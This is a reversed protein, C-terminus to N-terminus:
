FYRYFNSSPTQKNTKTKFSKFLQELIEPRESASFATKKFLTLLHQSQLNCQIYCQAVDPVDYKERLVSYSLLENEDVRM